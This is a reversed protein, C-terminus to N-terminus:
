LSGQLAQVAQVHAPDSNLWARFADQAAADPEDDMRVLWEAAQRLVAPAVSVTRRRGCPM